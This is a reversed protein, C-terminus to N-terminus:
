LFCKIQQTLIEMGAGQVEVDCEYRPPKEGPVGIICKPILHSQCAFISNHM